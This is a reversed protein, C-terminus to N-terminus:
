NCYTTEQAKQQRIGVLSSRFVVSLRSVDWDDDIEIRATVTIFSRLNPPSKANKLEFFKYMNGGRLNNKELQIRMMKYYKMSQVECQIKTDEVLGDM